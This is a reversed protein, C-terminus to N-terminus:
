NWDVSGRSSRRLAWPQTLFLLYKLGREWSLLSLATLLPSIVVSIEIWAGVLPAVLLSLATKMRESYIEIWAGVLPAVTGKAFRCNVRENWDVSGRSSRRNWFVTRGISHYKLGREWSLLSSLRESLSTVPLLNWDVSGRSSRCSRMSHISDCSSNWDVSGRSSRRPLLFPGACPAFIEIWAGVLPAVADQKMLKLLYSNWDVSGRSSRCCYQM